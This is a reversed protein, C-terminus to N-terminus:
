LIHKFTSKVKIGCKKKVNNIIYQLNEKISNELKDTIIKLAKDIEEESIQYSIKDVIMEQYKEIEKFNEHIKIENGEPNKLLINKQKVESLLLAQAFERKSLDVLEKKLLKECISENFVYLYLEQNRYSFEVIDNSIEKVEKANLEISVSQFIKNKSTILTNSKEEISEIVEQIDKETIKYKLKDRLASEYKQINEVRKDIIINQGLEERLTKNTMLYIETLQNLEFENIKSMLKENFVCRDPNIFLVEKNIKNFSYKQVLNESIVTDIIMENEKSFIKDKKFEHIHVLIDNLTYESLSKHLIDEIYFYKEFQNFYITENNLLRCQMDKNEKTCLIMFYLIIQEEKFKDTMLSEFNDENYIGQEFLIFRSTDNVKIITYFKEKNNETLIQREEPLKGIAENIEEITVKRQLVKLLQEEKNLLIGSYDNTDKQKSFILYLAQILERKRDENLEVEQYENLSHENFCIKNKHFEILNENEPNNFLLKELEYIVKEFIKKGEETVNFDNEFPSLFHILSAFTSMKKIKNEIEKEYKMLDSLEFVTDFELSGIQAIEKLPRIKELKILTLVQILERLIEENLEEKLYNEVIGSDIYLLNNTFVVPYNHGTDYDVKQLLGKIFDREENKNTDINFWRCLNEIDNKTLTLNVKKDNLIDKINNIQNTIEIRKEESVADDFSINANLFNEKITM